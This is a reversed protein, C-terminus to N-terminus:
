PSPRSTKLRESKDTIPEQITSTVKRRCTKPESYLEFKEDSSERECRFRSGPTSMAKPADVMHKFWAKGITRRTGGPSLGIFLGKVEAFLLFATPLHVLTDRSQSPRM